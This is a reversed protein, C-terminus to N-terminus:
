KGELKDLRAWLDNIQGQTPPATSVSVIKIGPQDAAKKMMDVPVGWSTLETGKHFWRIKGTRGCPTHFFERGRFKPRCYCAQREGCKDCITYYDTEPVVLGHKSISKCTTPMAGIEVCKLKWTRDHGHGRGVLAHAIEHLITDRVLEERNLTVYSVSLNITKTSHTCQGCRRKSITDFEFIWGRTLLGHRDMLEAALDAARKLDM